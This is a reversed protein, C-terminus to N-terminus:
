QPQMELNQALKFNLVTEAPVAKDRGTYVQAGAGAGGGALAGIAAGKGGGLIAGLVAGVAAGGGVYKATRKNTGLGGPASSNKAGSQTNLLYRRGDVTVSSLDLYTDKGDDTPYAELRAESGRPIAVNGSQDVVDDAVRAAFTTNAAPKAPIETSTRVRIESNSPLVRPGQAFAAAAVLVFMVSITSQLIRLKM